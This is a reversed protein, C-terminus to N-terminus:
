CSGLSQVALQNVKWLNGSLRVIAQIKHRGGPTSDQLEGNLKYNLWHTGDSCDSITVDTPRGAPFSNVVTPHLLPAGRSVIGQRHNTYIGRYLISLAEGSAHHGLRPDQYEGTASVATVDAWMSRYATLASLRAQDAATPPQTTAPSVTPAASVAPGRGATSASSSCGCLATVALALGLVCAASRPPRPSPGPNALPM